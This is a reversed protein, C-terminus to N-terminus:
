FPHISSFFNNFVLLVKIACTVSMDFKKDSWRLARFTNCWQLIVLMCEICLVINLTKYHYQLKQPNKNIFFYDNSTCASCEQKKSKCVVYLQHCYCGVGGGLVSTCVCHVCVCVHTHTHTHTYIYIYACMCTVALLPSHVTAQGKTIEEVKHEKWYNPTQYTNRESIKCRYLFRKEVQVPILKRWM